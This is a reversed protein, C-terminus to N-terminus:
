QIGVARELEIVSAWLSGLVELEKRRAEGAERAVQVVRFLDFKGARWGQNVLEVNAEAAPVIREHWLKAEDRRAFSSRYLRSVEVAIEHQVLAIEEEARSQEARVVAVEGQNHRWFPLPLGLGAGLYIQGPQARQVELFFTPSPVIERHLRVIAADLQSRTSALACLEERRAKAEEILQEVATAPLIPEALPSTLKILIPTPIDLLRRLENVADAAALEAEM